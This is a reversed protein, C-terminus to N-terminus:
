MSTGPSGKVLSQVKLYSDPQYNIRVSIKNTYLDTHELTMLPPKKSLFWELSGVDLPKRGVYRTKTELNHHVRM